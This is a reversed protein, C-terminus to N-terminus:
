FSHLKKLLFDGTLSMSIGYSYDMQSIRVDYYSELYAAFSVNRFIQKLYSAKFTIVYRNPHVVSASSPSVSQFLPEGLPSIFQHGSWYGLAASFDHINASIVPYLGFGNKFAQKKQPSFDSYGAYYFDLMVRKILAQPRDARINFGTTWNVFTKLPEDIFTVQGGIHKATLQVPLWLQLNGKRFLLTKTATGFTLEEQFPDNYEIYKEWNIWTDLKFGDNNVLFQVGYELPHTYMKEWQYLPEILQHRTTGKLWGLLVSFKPTPSYTARFLPAVSYLGDRGFFQSFHVGAELAFTKNLDYYVRPQLIFGPLTYGEALPHFYENNKFFSYSNLRVGIKHEVNGPGASDPMVADQYFQAHVAPFLLLCWLINCLKEMLNFMHHPL